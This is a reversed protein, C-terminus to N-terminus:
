YFLKKERGEWHSTQQLQEDLFCLLAIEQQRYVIVERTKEKTM